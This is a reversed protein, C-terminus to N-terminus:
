FRKGSNDLRRDSDHRTFGQRDSTQGNETTEMGFSLALDNVREDTMCKSEVGSDTLIKSHSVFSGATPDSGHGRKPPHGVV